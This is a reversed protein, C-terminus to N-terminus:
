AASDPMLSTTFAMLAPVKLGLPKGFVSQGVLAVIVGLAVLGVPEDIVRGALIVLKSPPTVELLWNVQKSILVTTGFKFYLATNGGDEGVASKEVVFAAPM